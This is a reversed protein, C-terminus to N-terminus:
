LRCVLHRLSQLESTHEESRQELAVATGKLGRRVRRWRRLLSGVGSLRSATTETPRVNDRRPRSAHTITGRAPKLFSRRQSVIRLAVFVVTMGMLVLRTSSAANPSPHPFGHSLTFLSSWSQPMDKVIRSSAFMLVHSHAARQISPALQSSILLLLPAFEYESQM